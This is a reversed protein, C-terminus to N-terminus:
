VSASTNWEIANGDYDFDGLVLGLLFFLCRVFLCFVLYFFLLWLGDVISIDVSIVFSITSASGGVSYLVILTVVRAMRSAEFM